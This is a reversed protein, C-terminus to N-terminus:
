STIRRLRRRTRRYNMSTEEDSRAIVPFKIMQLHVSFFETPHLSTDFPSMPCLKGPGFSPPLGSRDLFLMSVHTSQRSLGRSRTLVSCRRLIDNGHKGHGAPLLEKLKAPRIHLWFCVCLWPAFCVGEPDSYLELWVCQPLLAISMLLLDNGDKDAWFHDDYEVKFGDSGCDDDALFTYEWYPIEDAM